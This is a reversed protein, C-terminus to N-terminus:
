TLGEKASSHAKEAGAGMREAEPCKGVQSSPSKITRTDPLAHREQEPLIYVGSPLRLFVVLTLMPWLPHRLAYLVRGADAGRIALLVSM